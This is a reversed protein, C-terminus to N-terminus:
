AIERDTEQALQQAADTLAKEPDGNNLLVQAQADTARAFARAYDETYYAKPINPVEDAFMRYIPQNNFYPVKKDFFPNDYTSLLSPFLGYNKMMYMQADPNTMAFKSYEYAADVNESNANIVLNSGGLNAARNGGSEFAPLQFADWKGKQEPAQETITGAYWVGAAASVVRENKFATVGGGYGNVNSVLGADYMKKIKEMATVAEPTALMIKGAENFYFTGQENLMMRFVGDDNAADIGLLQKDTSKKIENGADIFDDWTEINEPKIGAKDFFDVRYFIGTPGLDWPLAYITGDSEAQPWKTNAIEDKFKDAGMESLNALGQPFKVIYGPLRDTELMFVDPLGSGGAALGTTVKDYLDLRGVNDVKVKVQSDKEKFMPVVERLSAAAVDWGWAKVDGSAQQNSNNGCGGLMVLSVGAGLSTALFQQRTLGRGSLRQSKM